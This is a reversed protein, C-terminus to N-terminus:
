DGSQLFDLYFGRHHLCRKLARYLLPIHAERVVVCCGLPLFNYAACRRAARPRRRTFTSIVNLIEEFEITIGLFFWAVFVFSRIISSHSVIFGWCWSVALMSDGFPFRAPLIRARPFLPHDEPSLFFVALAPLGRGGSGGFPAAVREALYPFFRRWFIM